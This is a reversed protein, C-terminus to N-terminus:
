RELSFLAPTDDPWFNTNLPLPKKDPLVWSSRAPWSNLLQATYHFSVHDHYRYMEVFSNKDPKEPNQLISSWILALWTRTRTEHYGSTETTFVGHSLNLTQIKERLELLAETPGFQTLFHVAVILHARHDWESKELTGNQFQKVLDTSEM